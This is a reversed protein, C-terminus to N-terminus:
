SGRLTNPGDGESPHEPRRGVTVASTHRAEANWQARPSDVRGIAQRLAM